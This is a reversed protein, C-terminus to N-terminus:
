SKVSWERTFSLKEKKKSTKVNINGGEPLISDKKRHNLAGRYLRCQPVEWPVLMVFDPAIIVGKM